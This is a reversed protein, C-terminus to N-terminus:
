CLLIMMLFRSTIAAASDASVKVAHSRDVTSAGEEAGATTTGTGPGAPGFPAVPVGASFPSVPAVPAVPAVPEVPEVPEVPASPACPLVPPSVIM